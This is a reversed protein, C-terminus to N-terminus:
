LNQLISSISVFHNVESSSSRVVFVTFPKTQGFSAVSLKEVM